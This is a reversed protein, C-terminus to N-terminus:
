RCASVLRSVVVSVANWYHRNLTRGIDRERNCFDIIIGSRKITRSLALHYDKKVLYTVVARLKLRLWEHFVFFTFTLMGTLLPVTV